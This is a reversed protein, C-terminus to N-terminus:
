STRPSIVYCKYGGLPYYAAVAGDSSVSTWVGGPHFLLSSQGTGIDIRYLSGGNFNVLANRGALGDIGSFPFAGSKTDLSFTKPDTAGAAPPRLSTITVSWNGAPGQPSKRVFVFQPLGGDVVVGGQADTDEEPRWDVGMPFYAVAKLTEADVAAVGRFVPGPTEPSPGEGTVSLYIMQETVNNVVLTSGAPGGLGVVEGRIEDLGCSRLHGGELVHLRSLSEGGETESSSVAFARLSPQPPLHYEWSDSGASPDTQQSLKWEQNVVTYIDGRSGLGMLGSGPRYWIDSLEVGSDRKVHLDSAGVTVTSGGRRRGATGAPTTDVAYVASEGTLVFLKDKAFSVSGVPEPALLVLPSNSKTGAVRLLDERALTMQRMLEQDADGASLAEEVFGAARETFSPHAADEYYPSFLADSFLHFSNMTAAMAVLDQWVKVKFYQKADTLIHEPHALPSANETPLGAARYSPTLDGIYKGVATFDDAYAKQMAALAYADAERELAKARADDPRRAFNISQSGPRHLQRHGLEHLVIFGLYVRSAPQIFIPSEDETTQLAPPLVLSKDIFIADMEADYVANGPGCDTVEEAEPSTTYVNLKGPQLPQNISVEIRQGASSALWTILGHLYATEDESIGGLTRAQLAQSILTRRTKRPSTDTLLWVIVAVFLLGLVIRAAVAPKIKAM